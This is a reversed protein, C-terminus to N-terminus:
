SKTIVIFGNMFQVSDFLPVDTHCDERRHWGKQWDGFEAPPNLPVNGRRGKLHVDDAFTKFYEVPSIRANKYERWYSTTTDEVIYIGGSKLYNFLTQFTQIQEMWFHNGDDIILDFPSYQEMNKLQALNRQDLLHFKIRDSYAECSKSAKSIDAGHIIARTFYDAWM